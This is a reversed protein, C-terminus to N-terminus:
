LRKYLVEPQNGHNDRYAAASYPGNGCPQRQLIEAAALGVDYAGHLFVHTDASLRSVM